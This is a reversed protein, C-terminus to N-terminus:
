APLLYPTGLYLVIRAQPQRPQHPSKNAVQPQKTVSNKRLSRVRTPGPSNISTPPLVPCPHEVAYSILVSRSHRDSRTLYNTPLYIHGLQIDMDESDHLPRPRRRCPLSHTKAREEPAVRFDPRSLELYSLDRASEYYTILRRNWPSSSSKGNKLYRLKRFRKITRPFRREDPKQLNHNRLVAVPHHARYSRSNRMWASMWDFGNEFVQRFGNPGNLETDFRDFFKESKQDFVKLGKRFQRSDKSEFPKFKQPDTLHHSPQLTSM